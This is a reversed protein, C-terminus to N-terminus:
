NYLAVSFVLGSYCEVKFWFLYDDEDTQKKKSTTKFGGNKFSIDQLIKVLKDWGEQENINMIITDPESSDKYRISAIKSTYSSTYLPTDICPTTPGGNGSLTWSGFIEGIEYAASSYVQKRMGNLIRINSNELKIGKTIQRFSQIAYELIYDKQDYGAQSYSKNIQLWNGAKTKMETVLVHTRDSSETFICEKKM